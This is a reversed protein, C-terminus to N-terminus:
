SLFFEFALCAAETQRSKRDKSRLQFRQSRNITGEVVSVFIAGDISAPARPGLHGTIAISVNAEPTQALVAVAMEVTVQESEASHQKITSPEIQLWHSKTAERYTVASGCFFRSIGPVTTIAAAMKGGTCSEAFVCKQNAAELQEAVRTALRALRTELNEYERTTEM